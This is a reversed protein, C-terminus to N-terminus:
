GFFRAIFDLFAIFQLSLPL